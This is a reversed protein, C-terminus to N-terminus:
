DFDSKIYKGPERLDGFLRSSEEASLQKVESAHRKGQRGTPFYSWHIRSYMNAGTGCHYIAYDWPVPENKEVLYFDLEKRADALITKTEPSDQNILWEVVFVHHKPKAIRGILVWNEYPTSDANGYRLELHEKQEDAVGEEWRWEPQTNRM